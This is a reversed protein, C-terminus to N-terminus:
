LEAMYTDDIEKGIVQYCAQRDAAEAKDMTKVTTCIM